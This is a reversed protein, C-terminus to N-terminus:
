SSLFAAADAATLEPAEEMPIHGVGDYTIFESDSVNEALERGFSVPLWTDETGWQFLTPVAVDSIDYSDYVAPTADYASPLVPTRTNIIEQEEDDMNDERYNRALEMVARRNGSRLVLDHYRNVLDRTVKSTDAYADRLALRTVLRPTLYRPFLATGFARYNEALNSLLTAGGADILVLRSVIDPRETALRWAVAGGLSNGAVAVASLDLEDCFEAVTAILGELTNDDSTRPGTLGFGPMDLRVIRFEEGLQEVWGDWTHLSSYTGHLAVITPGETNGEDRYHIRAGDLEIFESADSTYRRELSSQSRDPQFPAFESYTETAVSNAVTLGATLPLLPLENM